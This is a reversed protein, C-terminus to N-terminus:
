LVGQLVEDLFRYGRASCKVRAGEVLVLERAVADRLRGLIEAAPRGTRPRIIATDFGQTLRLNNLLFEFAVDSEAVEGAYGVGEPDGASGQYRQPHKQKWYRTIKGARTVKGHAGAGIGLYDGFSWYNLNHRSQWGDRAHASVEYQGYGNERAIAHLCQQIEMTLDDDPLTPPHRHFLTNPEITLQYLSLHTPSFACATTIDRRASALTQQPLGFMLDLNLNTFGAATAARIARAADEANHIRGLTALHADDFSQVGLSLRNVGAARYAAFDDHEVTGPNAELTIEADEALPMRAGVGDLLRAIATGGFLSPTGGGLFISSLERPEAADEYVSIDYDLDRLLADIYSQQDIVERRTHSNFDCYPCKKVCWPFHVYLALPLSDTPAASTRGSKSM